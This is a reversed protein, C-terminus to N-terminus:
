GLGLGPCVPFRAIEGRTLDAISNALWLTPLIMTPPQGSTIIQIIASQFTVTVYFGGFYSIM